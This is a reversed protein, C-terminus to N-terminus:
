IIVTDKYRSRLRALCEKTSDFLSLRDERAKSRVNCLRLARLLRTIPSKSCPDLRQPESLISLLVVCNASVVVVLIPLLVSAEKLKPLVLM